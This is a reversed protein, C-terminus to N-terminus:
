SSIQTVISNRSLINAVNLLSFNLDTKEPGTVIIYHASASQGYSYSYQKSIPSFEGFKRGGINELSNALILKEVVLCNGKM